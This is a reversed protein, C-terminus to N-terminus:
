ARRNGTIHVVGDRIGAELRHLPAAAPGTLVRGRSDFRSGHCPCTFGKEDARVRCGLHTCTLDLATFRGGELQTVAIGEGPLVLAGRIPVDAVPVSVQATGTPLRPSLFKGLGVIGAVV